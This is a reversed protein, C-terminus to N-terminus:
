CGTTVTRLRDGYLKVLEARAVELEQTDTRYNGREGDVLTYFYNCSNSSNCSVESDPEKDDINYNNNNNYHPIQFTYGNKKNGGARKVEGVEELRYIVQRINDYKEGVLTAIAKATMPQDAEHLVRIIKQRELTMDPDLAEGVIQWLAMAPDFKLALPADDEIDRGSIHLTADAEGRNRVLVLSGDVSGTLGTSGSIMDMPDDIADAKRLHHIILFAVGHKHSLEQLSSGIEYDAYYMDRGGRGPRIKQLTDIIVM